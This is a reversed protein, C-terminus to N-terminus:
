NQLSTWNKTIDYKRWKIIVTKVTNWPIDLPKSIRKQQSIVKLLSIGRISQFCKFGVKAIGVSGVIVFHM